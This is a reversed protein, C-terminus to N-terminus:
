AGARGAERRARHALKSRENAINRVPERLVEEGAPTLAVTVHGAELLRCVTQADFRRDGCRFAGDRYELKGKAAASLAQRHIPTATM